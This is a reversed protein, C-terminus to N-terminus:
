GVLHEPQNEVQDDRDDVFNKITHKAQQSMAQEPLDDILKQLEALIRKTGTAVGKEFIESGETQLLSRLTVNEEKLRKTEEQLHKTEAAKIARSRRASERNSLKRRERRVAAKDTPTNSRQQPQSHAMWPHAMWTGLFSQDASYQLPAATGTHRPYSQIFPASASMPDVHTSDPQFNHVLEPFFLSAFFDDVQASADGNVTHMADTHMASENVRLM